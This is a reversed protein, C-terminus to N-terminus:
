NSILPIVEQSSQEFSIEENWFKDIYEIKLKEYMAIAYDSTQEGYKDRLKDEAQKGAENRAFAGRAIGLAELVASTIIDVPKDNAGTVGARLAIVSQENPDVVLNATPSGRHWSVFIEGTARPKTEFGRQYAARSLDAFGEIERLRVRTETGNNAKVVLTKGLTNLITSFADAKVKVLRRKEAKQAEEEETGEGEELRAPIEGSLERVEANPIPQFRSPTSPAM